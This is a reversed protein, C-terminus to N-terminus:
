RCMVMKVAVRSDIKPPFQTVWFSRYGSMGLYKGSVGVAPFRTPTGLFMGTRDGTGSTTISGGPLEVIEHFDAILHGDSPRTYTGVEMGLAKGIVKGSADYIDDHYILGEGGARVPISSDEGTHFYDLTQETIGDLTECGVPPHGTGPVPDSVDAATDGGADSVVAWGATAITVLAVLVVVLAARPRARAPM